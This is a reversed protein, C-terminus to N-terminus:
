TRDEGLPVCALGGELMAVGVQEVRVGLEKEIDTM